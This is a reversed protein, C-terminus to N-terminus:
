SAHDLVLERSLVKMPNGICSSSCPLDQTIVSGIGIKCDSGIEVGDAVLTGTGLFSCSGVKSFGSVCVRPALFASPGIVSDHSVVVGNNLLAGDEIVAGKDLVCHPYIVIGNGLKANPHVYSTHHVLDPISRNQEKLKTFITARTQLHHYGLGVYFECHSYKEDLFSSFPFCEPSSDAAFLADDFFIESFSESSSEHLFAQLQKGLEGFGIYAVTRM